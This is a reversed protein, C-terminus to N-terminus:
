NSGTGGTVTLLTTTRFHKRMEGSGDTEKAQYAIAQWFRM